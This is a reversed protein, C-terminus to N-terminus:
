NGHSLFYLGLQTQETNVDVGRRSDTKCRQKAPKTPKAQKSEKVVGHRIVHGTHLNRQAPNKLFEITNGSSQHDITRM